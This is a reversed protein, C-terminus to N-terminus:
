YKSNKSVHATLLIQFIATTKGNCRNLLPLRVINFSRMCGLLFFKAFPDGIQVAAARSRRSLVELRMDTFVVDGKISYM